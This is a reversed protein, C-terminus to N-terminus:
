KFNLKNKFTTSPRFVVVRRASIKFEIKNKPNRGIREKKNLVKFTGFSTIKVTSSRILEKILIEIFDDLIISSFNKSFGLNQYIKNVIDKKTLNNKLM